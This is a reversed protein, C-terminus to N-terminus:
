NQKRLLTKSLALVFFSFHTSAGKFRALISEMQAILLFGITVFFNVPSQEEPLIPGKTKLFRMTMGAM